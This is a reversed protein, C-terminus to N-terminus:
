CEFSPVQPDSDLQPSITNVSCFSVQSRFPTIVGMSSFEVGHSALCTVLKQVISAELDNVPGGAGRTAGNIELGKFGIYGPGQWSCPMSDTDLFVVPQDPDIAGKLWIGDQSSLCPSDHQLKLRQCRVQDNGCKLLGNYAIEKATLDLHQLTIM